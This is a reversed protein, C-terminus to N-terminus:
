RMTAALRSYFVPGLSCNKVGGRSPGQPDPLALATQM